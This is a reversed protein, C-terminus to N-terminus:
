LSDSNMFASFARFCEAGLRHGVDSVCLHPTYGSEKFLQYGEAARSVPIIKDQSGHGIFVRIATEIARLINRRSNKPLFGSLIGLRSVQTHFAMSFVFAAAAGQSFGFVSIDGFEANPFKTELEGMAQQLNEVAPLFDTYDPWSEIGKNIWSYGTSGGDRSPFPARPSILLWDDALKNAFVWMSYEDGTWGHLMLGVRAKVANGPSSVRFISNGTTLEETKKM